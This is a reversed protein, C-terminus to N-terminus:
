KRPALEPEGVHRIIDMSSVLGVLRDRDTVVVRHIKEKAMLTAVEVLSADPSVSIVERTMARDVRTSELIDEPLEDFEFEYGGEYGSVTYFLPRRKTRKRGKGVAQAAIDSISLVGVVKGEDDTVPAGTIGEEAFTKMAEGLTMARSLSVVNRSMM